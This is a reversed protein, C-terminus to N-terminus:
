RLPLLTRAASKLRPFRSGRTCPLPASTEGPGRNEETLFPWSTAAKARHRAVVANGRRCTRLMSGLPSGCSLALVGLVLLIYRAAEDLVRRAAASVRGTALDAAWLGGLLILLLNLALSKSGSEWTVVKRLDAVLTRALTLADELQPQLALMYDEWEDPILGRIVPSSLWGVSLRVELREQPVM